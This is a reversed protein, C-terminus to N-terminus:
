VQSVLIGGSLLMFKDGRKFLCIDETQGYVVSNRKALFISGVGFVRMEESWFKLSIGIYLTVIPSMVWEVVM